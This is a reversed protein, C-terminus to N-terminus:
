KSQFKMTKIIVIIDRIQGSESIKRRNLCYLSIKKSLYAIVASDLLEFLDFDLTLIM